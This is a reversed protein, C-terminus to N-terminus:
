RAWARQAVGDRRDLVDDDDDTLVAAEIVHERGVLGLRALRYVVKQAFVDDCQIRIVVRNGARAEVLRLLKRRAIDARRISEQQIWDFLRKGAVGQRSRQGTTRLTGLPIERRAGAAKPGGAGRCGGARLLRDIKRLDSFRTQGIRGIGVAQAIVM